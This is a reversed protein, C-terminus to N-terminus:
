EYLLRNQQKIDEIEASFSSDKQRFLSSTISMGIIYNNDILNLSYYRHLWFYIFTNIDTICGISNLESNPTESMSQSIYM